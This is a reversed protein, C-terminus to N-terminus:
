KSKASVCCLRGGRNECRSPTCNPTTETQSCAVCSDADASSASDSPESLDASLLDAGPPMADAPPPNDCHCGLFSFVLLLSSLLFVRM